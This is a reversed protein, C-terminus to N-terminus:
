EARPVAIKKPAISFVTRRNASRGDASDNSAIPFFEGKGVPTLQNANVNMDRVLTRCVANARALSWEWSDVFKLKAPLANDTFAQVEVVVAPHNFLYDALITLQTKGDASVVVGDPQFLLNDPLTLLVREGERELNVGSSFSIGFKDGLADFVENVAALQQNQATLVKSIVSNRGALSDELFQIKSRLRTNESALKGSSEGFQQQKAAVEEGLQRNREELKGVTKSLDGVQETLRSTENKRATLEQTLVTERAESKERLSKEAKYIKPKVCATLCGFFILTSIFKLQSQLPM